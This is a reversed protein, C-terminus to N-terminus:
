IMLSKYHQRKVHIGFSREMRPFTLPCLLRWAGHIKQLKRKTTQSFSPSHLPHSDESFSSSHTPQKRYCLQPRPKDSCFFRECAKHEWFIEQVVLMLHRLPPSEWHALGHNKQLWKLEEMGTTTKRVQPLNGLTQGAWSTYKQTHDHFM